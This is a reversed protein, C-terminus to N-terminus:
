RKCQMIWIWGSGAIILCCLACILQALSAGYLSALWGTLTYGLPVSGDFFLVQVSIVRGRLHDPALTQLTTMAQAAFANEAFGVSAILVLSFLYSQSLAFAAELVGFILVCMLVGRLTFPRNNWALWLSALLAGTGIAASLFGLGTAGEHLVDTAFLPLFINFNSGLFLVLGVILILSFIQPTNWVYTLGERLSQWVNQQEGRDSVRQEQTYLERSKILALGVLVALFSLANLLFLAPVGSVAIIIGGLGPGVIRALTSLSSKLAIANPLDERGVMEIVFAQSTPMSLSNVVGLLLALIYVHWLQITGTIILLWLLQAQFMAIAQTVFLVRRKPWRDALVGAFLSFLLVALAQLAGVLGLQWASHTLQLVLWAQGIGQMGSGILSIMQGFWFLRYNRHRLSIFAHTM